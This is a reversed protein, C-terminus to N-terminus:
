LIAIMAAAMTIGCAHYFGTIAGLTLPAPTNPAVANVFSVTSGYGLGLVLGLSVADTPASAGAARIVIATAVSATFCGVLPAVFYLAGRTSPTSPGVGVAHEWARGLVSPSFWLGGLVFYAITAAGVAPWSIGSLASTITV